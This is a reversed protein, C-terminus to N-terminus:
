VWVAAEGGGLGDTIWAELRKVLRRRAQTLCEM